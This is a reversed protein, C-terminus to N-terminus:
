GLVLALVLRRSVDIALPRADDTEFRVHVSLDTGLEPNLFVQIDFPQGNPLTDVFSAIEIILSSQCRQSANM